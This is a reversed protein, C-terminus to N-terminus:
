FTLDVEIWDRNRKAEVVDHERAEKPDSRAGHSLRQYTAGDIIVSTCIPDEPVSIL